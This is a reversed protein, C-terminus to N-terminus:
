SIGGIEEVKTTDKITYHRIIDFYLLIVV